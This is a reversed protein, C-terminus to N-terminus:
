DPVPQGAGHVVVITGSRKELQEPVAQGTGHVVVEQVRDRKKNTLFLRVLVM